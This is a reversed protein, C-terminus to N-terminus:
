ECFYYLIKSNKFKRYVKFKMREFLAHFNLNIQIMKFSNFGFVSIVLYHHLFNTFLFTALWLEFYALM